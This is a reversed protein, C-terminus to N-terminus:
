LLSNLTTLGSAIVPGKNSFMKFEQGLVFNQDLYSGHDTLLSFYCGDGNKHKFHLAQSLEATNEYM